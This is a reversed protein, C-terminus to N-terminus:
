AALESPLQNDDNAVFDADPSQAENDAPIEPLDAFRMVEPVWALARERVEVETIYTGAFVREASMALDGKKVSAFRSSLELGGVDTLADLIVQKSVRDFYNAATPRWWQAMDIGTASGLHDQFAIQREGAMNLSAELTRAVVFGLWAARSEDALARFIKFRSSADDGSRWSEDLGSRLDALSASAPADKAEFGVIPGAPVGGRLTTAARSRWDHTDADALTFVMIDLSLGPDSAVHLALVDRRQMALEDVLRKSLAARRKGDSAVSAVVEVVDEDGVVEIDREGYFVPQLVPTGDRSLVLIMGADAKMEPALEPPKARIDQCEREIAEITAEAAAIAEEASDEDELIAAHEDYSADLEDLRALEADTLPAPEAPLRILGEVLDHSAYADLTPKVWALGQEAALAKARKEMEEAALTELLAVDVWSESDDDDFLEREIRGGAAIYAERGVLRARADSGRVTGSLVMRRISDASPAYYGSSAQEYVRAQIVQDSTAGFAKALDLTIEGSALADFVVPALTALRLRGEVFRVTLGFRRAVDETSAGADILTAFAQAEDAPNMALRHFNEALSTEVATEADDELVLCTVEYGKPLVKEEALALLACRRREGAEVEFKGRAAPRVILNQLLGHAAISAKLEADAAPDSHRRVNRPSQVLKTLPISKIM